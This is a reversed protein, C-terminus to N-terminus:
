VKENGRESVANEAAVTTRKGEMVRPRLLVVVLVCSKTFTVNYNKGIWVLVISKRPLDCQLYVNTYVIEKEGAM